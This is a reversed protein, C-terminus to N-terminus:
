APVCASPASESEARGVAGCCGNWPVRPAAGPGRPHQAMALWPPGQAAARLASESKQLACEPTPTAEFGEPNETIPRAL